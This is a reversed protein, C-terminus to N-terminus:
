PGNDIRYGIETMLVHKSNFRIHSVANEAVNRASKAKIVRDPFEACVEDVVKEVVDYVWIHTEAPLKKALHSLMPRGMAGLGIFGLKEFNHTEAM